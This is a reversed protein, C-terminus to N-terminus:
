DNAPYSNKIDVVVNESTLIIIRSNSSTFIIIASIQLQLKVLSIDGYAAM